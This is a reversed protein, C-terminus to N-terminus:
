HLLPSWAPDSAETPTIVERENFGTVDISYLRTAGGPAQQKAFIIVRGNPSWSPSEVLHSGTIIREGSGDPRMVGIFFRGQYMKTFAVWDGRPSWVPTAYRGEGFSIRKQGSGDSNMIFLQQTGSRDSNFAIYRGDPSYSPSTDIAADTTLKKRQLTQLDITYIDSNGDQAVSMIANRGDPAFRPAFSMGPFDGLRRQRGTTLDYLFVRPRRDAYSFYIIQQSTPSFRPTLVMHAGDTLFAHNEGDQDMVALRRVRKLVPGSEAVYVIRSNFYGGEGTLLKYVDDAAMHAIARWNDAQTSLVRGGIRQGLFVDYIHFEIELNNGVMRSTGRVLAAASIQRWSAFHPPSSLSSTKEIFAAQDIPRFLGSRELDAAIVQAVAMSSSQADSSLFDVVAIPLPERKAKNVNVELAAQAASQSVWVCFVSILACLVRKMNNM